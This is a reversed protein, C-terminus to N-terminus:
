RASVHERVFSIIKQNCDNHSVVRIINRLLVREDSDPVDEIFNIIDSRSIAGDITPYCENLLNQFSAVDAVNREYLLYCLSQVHALSMSRAQEGSKEYNIGQVYKSEIITMIEPAIAYDALAAIAGMLAALDKAPIVELGLIVVAENAEKLNVAEMLSNTESTGVCLVTLNPRDVKLLQVGASADSAAGPADVIRECQDLVLVVQMKASDALRRLLEIGTLGETSDSVWKRLNSNVLTQELNGRCRVYIPQYESEELKALLGARVLSTKGCRPPGFLYILPHTRQKVKDLIKCIDKDRGFFAAKSDTDYSELYKFPNPKAPKPAPPAELLAQTMESFFQDFYGDQGDVVQTQSNRRMMIPKMNSPIGTPNICHVPGGDVAFSRSVCLDEFGYGCVIIPQATLQAMLANIQEPYIAMQEYSWLQTVSTLSGHVKLVKIRPTALAMIKVVSDDTYEGCVIVKFDQEERLGLDGLAKQLLRDFNFTIITDFYGARILSALKAYGSSPARDLCEDLSDSRQQDSLVKWLQDFRDRLDEGVISQGFQKLLKEMIKNTPLVGSSLSAGAGLMLVYKKGSNKASCVLNALDSIKPNL